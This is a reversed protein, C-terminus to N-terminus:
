LVCSVCLVRWPLRSSFVVHDEEQSTVTSRAPKIRLLARPSLPGVASTKKRLRTAYFGPM